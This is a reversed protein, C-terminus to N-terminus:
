MRVLFYFHIYGEIKLPSSAQAPTLDDASVLIVSSDSKADHGVIQHTGAATSDLTTYSNKDSLWKGTFSKGSFESGDYIRDITLTAPDSVQPGSDSQEDATTVTLPTFFQSLTLLFLSLVTNNCNCTM